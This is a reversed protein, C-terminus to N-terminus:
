KKHREFPTVFEIMGSHPLCHVVKPPPVGDLYLLLPVKLFPCLLHHCPLPPPELFLFVDINPMQLFAFFFSNPCFLGKIKLKCAIPPSLNLSLSVLTMASILTMMAPTPSLKPLMLSKEVPLTDAQDWDFPFPLLALFSFLWAILIM